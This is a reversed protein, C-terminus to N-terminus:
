ESPLEGIAIFESLQSAAAEQIQAVQYGWRMIWDNVSISEKEAPGHTLAIQVIVDIYRELHYMRWERSQYGYGKNTDLYLRALPASSNIWWINRDVDKAGQYIPPDERSLSVYEKTDPDLDIDGSVLVLPFGQGRKDGRGRAQGPVVRVIAANKALCKDDGATVETQGPVFGFVLGSASVRAVNPDSENWVLYVANTEEKNSLRCLAELKQRSGAAIEIQSPVIDIELIRVVELPVKNSRMKGDLTEAYVNTQGFTFTNIIMLDEDVMAINTDESIWRFPVPRIRRGEHDLFKLTPRFAVGIGARQHTLTLELRTPKGTPLPPPPPPPGVMGPGWLGRMLEGLFRNKWRDLAENMKSLASKEEQNSRRRDRAEFEKAYVQIQNSIFKEVARTLPSNALRARENQKFQDLTELHCEGYIRDRYPSQVDLESVPIYGIYGSQGKYVINHRGKKSWRMSVDSTRLVLTGPPLGKETTTWVQEGSIPDKLAVPIPIVRPEEAGQMPAISPLSLPQGGNYREGNIVVYVKCLELTLIMQSHEQLNEILHHAPIKNGYGKPKAGIILTFGDSIRIAEIAADPLARIPCRTESLVKELESQLAVVPFDRGHQRDPFYGFKISGAAVGYRNGKGKRVTHILAYDEFM